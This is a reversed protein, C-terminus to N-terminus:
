MALEGTVTGQLNAEVGKGRGAAGAARCERRRARSQMSWRSRGSASSLPHRRGGGQRWPGGLGQHSKGEGWDSCVRGQRGHTHSHVLLYVSGHSRKTELDWRPWARAPGLLPVWPYCTSPPTM